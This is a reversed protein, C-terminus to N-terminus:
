YSMSAHLVHGVVKQHVETQGVEHHGTEVGDEVEYEHLVAVPDKARGVAGDVVEDRVEGHGDGDKGEHGDADVPVTICCLM